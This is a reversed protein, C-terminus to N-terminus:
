PENERIAEIFNGIHRINGGPGDVQAPRGNGIASGRHERSEDPGGQESGHGGEAKGPQRRNGGGGARNSLIHEFDV